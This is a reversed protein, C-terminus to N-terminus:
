LKIFYTKGNKGTAVTQYYGFEDLVVKIEKVEDTFIRFETNEFEFGTVEENHAEENYAELMYFYFIEKNKLMENIQNLTYYDKDIM